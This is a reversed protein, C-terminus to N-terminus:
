NDDRFRRIRIAVFFLIAAAAVSIWTEYHTFVAGVQRAIVGLAKELSLGDPMRVSAMIESFGAFRRGLFEGVHHSDMLLEEIALLSVPPLVAWLFANKRVWASVVLLYGAIPLYWVVVVPVVMLMMAQVRIWVGGDWAMVLNGLATGGTRLSWVPAFLLQLVATVLLVLIPAVVLATLLKSAVVETDSVPLSKWFLISRDKREGLLSDLLYFFVVVGCAFLQVVAFGGIVGAYITRYFEPGKQGVPPVHDATGIWFAGKDTVHILGFAAILLIVGTVVLPVIWISRNEWIERRVLWLSNNV